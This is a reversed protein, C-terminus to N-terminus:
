WGGGWDGYGGYGGDWDDHRNKENSLNNKGGLINFRYVVRLMGYQYIANNRSDTRMLADINRSINTQQGLIDNVELMVTLARGRLFSHAIQANWLLENTNMERQSYGRRSNMGIDTSLSTGWPATWELEAGYSFDYTKMNGMPNLDNKSRAFNLRGNLSASIQETRYSFELGTDLSFSRTVSRMDASEGDGSENNYFGVNRTFDGGLDVDLNFAKEKGFGTNFGLGLGGNWNGNINMPMTTRVGNADYTTKNDISNRTASFWFWSFIGQQREANYSNFDAFINHTFSPKLGPNGKTIVLPNSDDKIDLLNTM